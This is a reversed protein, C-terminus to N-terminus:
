FKVAKQTEWIIQKLIFFIGKEQPPPSINIFKSITCLVYEINTQPATGGYYCVSWILVIPATSIIKVKAIKMLHQKGMM